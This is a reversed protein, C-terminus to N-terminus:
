DTATREQMGEWTKCNDCKVDSQYFSLQITESMIHYLAPNQM